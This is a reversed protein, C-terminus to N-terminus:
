QSPFKGLLAMCFGVALYPQVNAHSQDKGEPSICAANMELLDTPPGYLPESANSLLRDGAPQHGKDSAPPTDSVTLGHAHQPIEDLILTHEEAGGRSGIPLEDSAGLPFRDRLDPLRFRKTREDGGYTTGIIAYLAPNQNGDLEQGNCPIWGEPARDFAFLRIESIYPEAM